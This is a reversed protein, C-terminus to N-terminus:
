EETALEAGRKARPRTAEPVFPIPEEVPAPLPALVGAAVLIAAAAEDTEFLVPAPNPEDETPTAPLILAGNEPSIPQLVIYQPM